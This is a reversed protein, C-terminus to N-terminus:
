VISESTLCLTSFKEMSMWTEQKDQGRRPKNRKHEDGIQREGNERGETEQFISLSKFDM